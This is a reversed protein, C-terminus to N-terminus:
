SGSFHSGPRPTSAVALSVAWWSPRLWRDMMTTSSTRDAQPYHVGPARRRTAQERKHPLVVTCYVLRCCCEDGTDRRFLVTTTTHTQSQAYASAATAQRLRNLVPGTHSQTRSYQAMSIMVCQFPADVSMNVETIAASVPVRHLHM